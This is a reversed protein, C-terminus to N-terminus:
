KTEWVATASDIQATLAELAAATAEIGATAEDWKRLEIPERVAPLTKVGYGTYFGPAYLQHRYWTRGPLGHEGLMARETAILITDLKAASDSPLSEKALREERAAQYREASKTLAAAANQLPAFNLFPVPDKAPQVVVAEDPDAVNEYVKQEIRWRETETEERLTDALKAVEDVYRAVTSALPTPDFPLVDAQALRMVIRGSVQALALGYRYGPDMFKEFHDISDYISHYQGYDGQGGFRVDLSAIGLHQLFPTYDSGSGLAGLGLPKGARAAKQEDPTGTLADLARARAAVSVGKQPDIVSDFVENVMTELAHSGGAGVFGRSNSDGNLYVVAKRGLEVAHHEAWETSGILGQEEGDWAAFVLTRRPRFGARALEGIAKAEAMLAIMGSTPDTAGNVWADHHNGRVIWQDPLESGRLTAIVDYVPVIRWDFALKL